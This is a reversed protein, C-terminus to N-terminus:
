SLYNYLTVNQRQRARSPQLVELHYVTKCLVKRHQTTHRDTQRDTQRKKWVSDSVDIRSPDGFNVYVHEVTLRPFGKM